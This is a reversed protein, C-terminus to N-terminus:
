SVLKRNSERDRFQQRKRIVIEEFRRKEALDSEIETKRSMLEQATKPNCVLTPICPKGHRDFPIDLRELMDNLAKATLPQGRRDLVNGTEKTVEEIRTFMMRTQKEAMQRAADDFSRLVEEFSLGKRPDTSAFLGVEANEMKPEDTTGDPRILKTHGGEPASVRRVLRLVGMHCRLRNDLYHKLFQHMHQKIEPFDPLM